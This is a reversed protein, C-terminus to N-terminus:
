QYEIWINTGIQTNGNIQMEFKEEFLMQGSDKRKYARCRSVGHALQNKKQLQCYSFVLNDEEWNGVLFGQVIEGGRYKASVARGEQEFEFLTEENVVGNTATILIKMKIGNLSQDKDEHIVFDGLHEEKLTLSDFRSDLENFIEENNKKFANRSEISNWYDITFYQDNSLTSKILETGIYGDSENFLEVWEGSSGYGKEFALVEQKKVHYKWIYIFEPVRQTNM